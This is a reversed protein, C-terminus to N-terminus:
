PRRYRVGTRDLLALAAPLRAQFGEWDRADRPSWAIEALALARPYAMYEVQEPTPMYETWVNGQPGLVHRAEDETLEAPVPEYRYTDELPTMGGIALPETAEPGQYHDFYLDEQPSMIVDHGQRAAAVGGAIGRWSM